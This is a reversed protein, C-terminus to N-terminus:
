TTATRFQRVLRWISLRDFCCFGCFILWWCPTWNLSMRFSVRQEFRIACNHIFLLCRSGCESVLLMKSLTTTLVESRSANMKGSRFGIGTLLRLWQASQRARSAGKKTSHQTKPPLSHSSCSHFTRMCRRRLQCIWIIARIRIWTMDLRVLSRQVSIVVIYNFVNM